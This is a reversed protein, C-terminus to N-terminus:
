VAQPEFRREIHFSKATTRWAGCILHLSLYDVYLITDTRVRIKVLAQAPSCVGGDEKCQCVAATANKRTAVPVHRTETLDFAVVTGVAPSCDSILDASQAPAEERAPDTCGMAPSRRGVIALLSIFNDLFTIRTPAL